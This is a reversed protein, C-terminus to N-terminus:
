QNVLNAAKPAAFLLYRPGVRRHSNAANNVFRSTGPEVCFTKLLPVDNTRRHCYLVSQSSDSTSLTTHTTVPYPFGPHRIAHRYLPLLAQISSTRMQMRTNDGKYIKSRHMTECECACVCAGRVCVRARARARVSACVCVTVCM